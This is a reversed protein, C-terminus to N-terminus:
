SSWLVAGFMRLLRQGLLSSTTLHQAVLPTLGPSKLICCHVTLSMLPNRFWLSTWDGSEWARRVAFHRSWIQSSIQRLSTSSEPPDIIIVCCTLWAHPNLTMREKTRLSGRFPNARLSLKQRLLFSSMVFSRLLVLWNLSLPKRSASEFSFLLSKSDYSTQFTLCRISLM